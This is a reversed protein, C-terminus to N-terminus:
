RSRYTRKGNDTANLEGNLQRMLYAFVNGWYNHSWSGVECHGMVQLVDDIRKETLEIPHM